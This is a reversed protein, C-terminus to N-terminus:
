RNNPAIGGGQGNLIKALIQREDQMVSERLGPMQDKLTERNPWAFRERIDPPCYQELQSLADDLFRTTENGENAASAPQGSVMEYLALLAAIFRWDRVEPQGRPRRTNFHRHGILWQDWATWGGGSSPMQPPPDDRDQLDAIAQRFKGYAAELRDLDDKGLPTARARRIALTVSQALWGRLGEMTEPSLATRANAARIIAEITALPLAASPQETESM